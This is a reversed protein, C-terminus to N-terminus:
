DLLQLAMSVVHENPRFFVVTTGDDIFPGDCSICATTKTGLFVGYLESDAKLMESIPKADDNTYLQLLGKYGQKDNLKLDGYTM